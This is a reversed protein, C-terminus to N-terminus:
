IRKIGVSVPQGDLEFDVKADLGDPLADGVDAVTANVAQRFTAFLEELTDRLGQDQSALKLMVADQPTLRIEKRLNMVQRSLERAMGKKKLEPTIVTDLESTWAQDGTDAGGKVEVAEVNLEDRVLGLLEHRQALRAALQADRMNVTLKALAQRVPLKHRARLELGSAAVARVWDMDKLLQEDVARDDSKPWKDLHVSMKPGAVEQYLKEAFFPTFPAMIKSTELLAERLSRLADLKEYENGAKMRERSRRLWWTSLDDVWARLPRAAGALDYSEFNTTVEREVENLRAMLWRDLVQMSRPKVIEPQDAAAYMKYFALVNWLIGFLGRQIVNCDKESFNLSDAQLVPSSLLYYRLTDAGLKEMLMWPDPYNKLSKSMKKGDEALIMGTVVVNKFAPKNFLATSLVHLTYFWGRTQDQAEAIFDAPFNEDFWEKNEHPYHVSAFPMSGSEFWCDFVEPIRKATGGCACPVTVEDIMPKHLDLTKGAGLKRGAAKELDAVSAFVQAKECDPCNWVPLPAGWYRTRSICWDPATELGNGFRGTKFTEPHWDIKKATELMKPKIKTVDVFYAPQAKYFLLTNCRWCVPVSHEVKEERYILGRGRLDDLVVPDSDKINMGAFKGTEPKQRGEDDVTVVVPLDHVKSAQFDEEGFAPATHVIGTGDTMTVYGMAVVKHLTQGARATVKALDEPSLPFLPEYELGELDKGNMKELVEFHPAADTLPYFQKLVQPMLKEAFIYTEGVDELRVKVYMEEPHVALAVNAVLTWPTTTWALFYTDPESKSKFKLTVAPDQADIYANQMAIEFNSLPTSCRPCYLSVRVDRYVLKKNWLEAFAWWVSETYSADMTKYAGDFEVWRGIRDVYKKWEGSYEMVSKACAQNFKDVGYAEIDRRSNLKLSKEVLNEAPLGHCDWGWRRPVRYGQMTWFRPVADKIVSQLLHGYHPLGNAFPPGDYFVYTKNEPREEISREFIREKQWFALTEEEMKAFDPRTPAGQGEGTTPKDTENAMNLADIM